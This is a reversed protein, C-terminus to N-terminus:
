DKLYNALSFYANAASYNASIRAYDSAESAHTDISHLTSDMEAIRAGINQFSQQNGKAIGDLKAITKEMLERNTAEIRRLQFIQQHQNRVITDLSNLVRQFGNEMHEHYLTEELTARSTSMYDYIYYVSQLNRYATALINLSYSEKLLKDVKWYEDQFHRERERIQAVKQTREEELKTVRLQEQQNYLETKEERRRNEERISENRARIRQNEEKAKKLSPPLSSLANILACPFLVCIVIMGIMRLLRIIYSKLIVSLLLSIVSFILWRLLGLFTNKTNDIEKQIAEEDVESLLREVYPTQFKAKIEKGEYAQRERVTNRWLQAIRYKALELDRCDRLYVLLADRNLEM